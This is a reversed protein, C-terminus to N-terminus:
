CIYDERIESPTSFIAGLQMGERIFYELSDLYGPSLRGPHVQLTMVGGSAQKLSGLCEIWIKGLKESDEPPFLPGRPDTILTYDSIGLTPFEVVHPTIRYPIPQSNCYANYVSALFKLAPKCIPYTNTDMYHKQFFPVSKFAIEFRKKSCDYQLGANELAQYTNYNHKYWPARFGTIDLDFLASFTKKMMNLRDIQVPVSGYFAQHVDGHGEVVHHHKVIYEVREPYVEAAKATIFFTGTVNFHHLVTFYRDLCGITETQFDDIDGTICVLLTDPNDKTKMSTIVPNIM